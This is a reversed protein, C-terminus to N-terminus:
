IKHDYGLSQHIQANGLLGQVAATGVLTRIVEHNREVAPGMFPRPPIKATGFEQYVAVESTSGIVAQRGKTEHGISHLLEGSRLLPDNGTFGQRVRDERTSEALEAWAPFPGIEDQYRGIEAKATAEVTRAAVELGHELAKETVIRLALLEVAFAGLSGFQKM